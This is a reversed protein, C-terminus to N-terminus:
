GQTVIRYRELEARIELLLLRPIQKIWKDLIVDDFRRAEIGPRPHKRSIFAVGGKGKRSRIQGPVTKSRFGKEMTAYRVATGHAIFKYIASGTWIVRKWREKEINFEPVGRWTQTTVQFDIRIDEAMMDLLNETIRELRPGFDQLFGAPVSVRARFRM